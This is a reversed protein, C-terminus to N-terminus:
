NETPTKTVNDIILRPVSAKRGELKLGLWHHGAGANNRLLVPKGGNNGILVDLGLDARGESILCQPTNMLSIENEPRPM